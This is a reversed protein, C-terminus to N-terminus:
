RRPTVTKPMLPYPHWRNYLLWKAMRLGSSSRKGIQILTTFLQQDVPIQREENSSNNHFVAEWELKRVLQDFTAPNMQAYM